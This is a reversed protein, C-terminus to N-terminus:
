FHNLSEKVAHHIFLAMEKPGTYSALGTGQDHQIIFLWCKNNKNVIGMYKHICARAIDANQMTPDDGWAELAKALEMGMLKTCLSAGTNVLKATKTKKTTKKTTM